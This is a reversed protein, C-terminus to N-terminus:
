WSPCIGSLATCGHESPDPMVTYFPSTLNSPNSRLRVSHILCGTTNVAMNSCNAGATDVNASTRFGRATSADQIGTGMGKLVPRAGKDSRM